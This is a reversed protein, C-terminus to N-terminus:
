IKRNLTKCEEYMDKCCKGLVLDESSDFSIVFSKLQSIIKLNRMSARDRTINECPAAVLAVDVPFFCANKHEV